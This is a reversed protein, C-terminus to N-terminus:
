KYYGHHYAVILKKPDNYVSVSYQLCRGPRLSVLSLKEQIWSKVSRSFAETSETVVMVNYSEFLPRILLGFQTPDLTM